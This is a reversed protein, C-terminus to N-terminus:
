EPQSINWTSVPEGKGFLYGQALEFGLERCIEAEEITEIFAQDTDFPGFRNM